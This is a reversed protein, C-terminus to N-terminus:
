KEQTSKLKRVKEVKELHNQVKKQKMQLAQTRKKEAESLNTMSKGKLQQEKWEDLSRKRESVKYIRKKDIRTCPNTLTARRKEEAKKLKGQIMELTISPGQAAKADAELRKKIMPVDTTTKPLAVEFAVPKAVQM